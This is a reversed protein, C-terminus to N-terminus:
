VVSKRDLSKGPFKAALGAALGGVLCSGFTSVITAIWADQRADGIMVVPLLVLISSVRTIVVILMLQRANIRGSM